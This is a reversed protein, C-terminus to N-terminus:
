LKAIAKETLPLPDLMLVFFHKLDRKGRTLNQSNIQLRTERFAKMTKNALAHVSPM